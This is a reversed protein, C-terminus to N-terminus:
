ELKEVDQVTAGEQALVCCVPLLVAIATSFGLYLFKNM